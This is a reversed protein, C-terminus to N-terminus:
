RSGGQAESAPLETPEPVNVKWTGGDAAMAIFLIAGERDEYILYAYGDPRVRFSLVKGVEVRRLASSPSRGFLLALTAACGEPKEADRNTVEARAILKALEGELQKSAEACADPWRRAARARLYAAVTAAAQAAEGEQGENGFAQVSNDGGRTVPVGPAVAKSGPVRATSRPPNPEPPTRPFTKHQRPPTGKEGGHGKEGEQGREGQPAPREAVAAAATGGSEEGGGGCGLAFGALLTMVANLVLTSSLRRVNM